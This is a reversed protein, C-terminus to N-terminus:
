RAFLRCIVGISQRKSLPNEHPWWETTEFFCKLMVRKIDKGSINRPIDEDSRLLNSSYRAAYIRTYIYGFGQHPQIRLRM